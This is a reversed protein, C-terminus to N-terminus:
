WNSVYNVLAWTNMFAVKAKLALQKQKSHRPKPSYLAPVVGGACVVCGQNNEITAAVDM